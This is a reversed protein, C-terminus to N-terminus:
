CMGDARIRFSRRGRRSHGHNVPIQELDHGPNGRPARNTAVGQLNLVRELAYEFRDKSLAEASFVHHIRLADGFDQMVGETVFDSKPYRWFTHPRDLQEVIRDIADLQYKTLKQLRESIIRIREIEPM